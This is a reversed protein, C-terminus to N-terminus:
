QDAAEAPLIDVGLAAVNVLLGDVVPAIGIYDNRGAKMAPVAYEFSYEALDESLDFKRWGSNGVDNTSYAVKMASGPEGSALIRIRVRNGDIEAEDESSVVFAAGGTKSGSTEVNSLGSISMTQNDNMDVSLGDAISMAEITEASPIFAYDAEFEDLIGPAATSVSGDAQTGDSGSGVQGCAAVMLATLFILGRM